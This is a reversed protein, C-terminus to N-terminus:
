SEANALKALIADLQAEYEAELQIKRTQYENRVRTLEAAQDSSLAIVTVVPRSEISRGTMGVLDTSGSAFVLGPLVALVLAYLHVKLHVKMDRERKIEAIAKM